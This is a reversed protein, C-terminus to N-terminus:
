TLTRRIIDISEIVREETTEGPLVPLYIVERAAKTARGKGFPQNGRFEAQVSMPKFGYRAAIGRKWLSNLVRTQRDETMGRVRIDYVWPADRFPMRWEDPCHKDCLDEIRRREVLNADARELSSLIISALSDALRYNHGRPEHNFDHSDTFGLCRMRKAAEAREPDLFAVAGGEEGAVIKNRYFSWCAATTSPHPPVGHAEALDEVVWAGYKFALDHLQDMEIRRGYIHVPLIARAGTVSLARDTEDLDLLLRDTCDVFVPVMGALVVARACAIMSFDPVIVKSGPPLGLSELALHLAATGSSCAVVNEVEAWRGFQVELEEHPYMEQGNLFGPRSQETRHSLRQPGQRLLESQATPILYSLKM